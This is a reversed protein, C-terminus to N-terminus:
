FSGVIHHTVKTIILKTLKQETTLKEGNEGIMEKEINEGPMERERKRDTKSRKGQMEQVSNEKRNDHKRRIASYKKDDM